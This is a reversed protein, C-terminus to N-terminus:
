DPDHLKTVHMALGAKFQETFLPIKFTICKSSHPIMVLTIGGGGGEGAM